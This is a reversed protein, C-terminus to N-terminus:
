PLFSDKKSLRTSPSHSRTRHRSSSRLGPAAAPVGSLATRDPSRPAWAWGAHPSGATAPPSSIQDPLGGRPRPLRRRERQRDHLLQGPVAPTGSRRGQDQHGRPLQGHLDGLRKMAVAAPQAHADQGDVAPLRDAPLHLRELAPDIDHDGRRSPREVVDPASRKTRLVDLHDHQVLRVLHEVHSEGLVDLLDQPRGGVIAPRDQEGRRQGRTDFSEGAAVETVGDLDLDAALLRRGALGREYTLARVHHGPCVLRRRESAQQVHLRRRSRDDEAAGALLDVLQRLSEVSAAVAGLCQVTAHALVLAVADHPPQAAPRRLQEDGGVHGRAPEVDVLEGMDDVVGNRGRGVRVHVADAPHAPGAALTHGDGQRLRTLM